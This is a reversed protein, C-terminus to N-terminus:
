AITVAWNGSTVTVTVTLTTGVAVQRFVGDQNFSVIQNVPDITLETINTFVVATLDEGAGTTGTITLTVRNPAAM